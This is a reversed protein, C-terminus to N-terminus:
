LRTCLPKGLLLSSIEAARVFRAFLGLFAEALYFEEFVVLALLSRVWGSNKASTFYGCYRTFDVSSHRLFLDYVSSSIELSAISEQHSYV